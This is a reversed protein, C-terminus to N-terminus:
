DALSHAARAMHAALEGAVLPLRAGATFDCARGHIWAAARAVDFALDVVADTAPQASWLGAIWGALVDGTGATALRADGSPNVAVRGHPTAVLTGSGKLVVVAGTDAALRRAAALRDAQVEAATSALLRAAELPHPTLITPLGRAGRARLQARLGADRAIANLADADLVLRHANSLGGPLESAVDDGGGCGAVVTAKRNDRIAQQLEAVPRLMLEPHRVDVPLVGGKDSSHAHVLVRGAGALSAAHAALLSAGVMGAAGGAVHVDGFTGKNAVQGRRPLRKAATGAGTLWASAPEDDAPHVDLDDFWIEGCAERGAGTFLGPKATLLALTHTARVVADGLKAGTATSLGTPADVSMVPGRLGNLAAIADALAGEPARKQGFGLLADIGLDIRARTAADPLDERLTVGAARAEALAWAADPPLTRGAHGVLTVGVAMGARQLWTALVLGDGGNNGPGAAIWASRAHPAIARALRLLGVGARAMLAHEPRGAAARQEIRRTAADDFLAIDQSSALLRRPTM